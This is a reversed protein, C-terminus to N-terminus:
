SKRIKATSASIRKSPAISGNTIIELMDMRDIYKLAYDMIEAIQPHM